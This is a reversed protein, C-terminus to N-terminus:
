GRVWGKPDFTKGQHRLEFYLGAQPNGGSNGVTAITEGAKVSAGENKLLSENNGYISLFGDGHDVIMLNGFGRLWDAFVVRGAAVVHVESGEPARIFLGRWRTGGDARPAGYRGEIQGKVPLILKGKLKAFAGDFESKEAPNALEPAPKKGKRQKNQKARALEQQRAKERRAQEREAAQKAALKVLADILKGLREEDRALAGIEQRQAQVKAAVTNLTAQRSARQEVLTAHQAQQRKEIAALQESKKRAADILQQKEAAAQRLEAIMRARSQALLELFHEDRALQNPDHGAILFSLSDGQSRAFQLRMLRSLRQQQEATQQELHKQQAEIDALERSTQQREEGLQWLQRRATSVAEESARLQDVAYTKNQENKGLERRLSDLREQLDKLESKKADIQVAKIPPASQTALPTLLCVTILLLRSLGSGHGFCRM